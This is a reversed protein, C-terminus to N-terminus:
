HNAQLPIRQVKHGKRQQEQGQEPHLVRDQPRIEGGERDKRCFRQLSVQNAQKIRRDQANPGEQATVGALPGM